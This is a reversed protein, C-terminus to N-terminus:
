LYVHYFHMHMTYGKGGVLLYFGELIRALIKRDFSNGPIAGQM